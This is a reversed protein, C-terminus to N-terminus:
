PIGTHQKETVETYQVRHSSDFNRTCPEEKFELKVPDMYKLETLVYINYNM